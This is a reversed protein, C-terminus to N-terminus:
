ALLPALENRPVAAQLPGENQGLLQNQGFYFIVAQDTIAFNQYTAPDLGGRLQPLAQAGMSQQLQQRVAPYVVDLPASGPTFLTDFTVPRHRGLDYTFTKVSTVPHAGVDQAAWLVVSQTGSAPPGSRFVASTIALQYLAPRSQPRSSQVYGLFEDRQGALYGLMPQPDAYDGPFTMDVSFDTAEAHLRCTQAADSTAGFDGCGPVPPAASAPACGILAVVVMAAIAAVVRM